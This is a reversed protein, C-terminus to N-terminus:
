RKDNFIAGAGLAALKIFLSLGDVRAIGITLGAMLAAKSLIFLLSNLLLVAVVVVAVGMVIAM